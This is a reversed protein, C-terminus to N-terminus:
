KNKFYKFLEKDSPYHELYINRYKLVSDKNGILDFSKAIEFSFDKNYRYISKYDQLALYYNGMKIYVNARKSLAVSFSDISIAKNYKLLAESFNNQRESIMGEFVTKKENIEFLSLSDILLYAEKLNSDNINKIIRANLTNELDLANQLSDFGTSNKNRLDNTFNKVNFPRNYKNIVFLFTAM